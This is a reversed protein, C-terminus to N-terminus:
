VKVEGLDRKTNTQGDVIVEYPFGTIDQGNYKAQVFYKGPGTCTYSVSLFFVIFFILNIKNKNEFSEIILYNIPDMSQTISRIPPLTHFKAISLM